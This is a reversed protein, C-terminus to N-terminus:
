RRKSVRGAVEPRGRPVSMALATRNTRKTGVASERVAVFLETNILEDALLL